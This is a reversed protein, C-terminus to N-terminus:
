RNYIEKRILEMRQEVRKKIEEQEKTSMREDMIKHYISLQKDWWQKSTIM